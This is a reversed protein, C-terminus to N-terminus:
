TLLSIKSIEHDEGAQFTWRHLSFATMTLDAGVQPLNQM